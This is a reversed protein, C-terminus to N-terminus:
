FHGGGGGRPKATRVPKSSSGSSSSSSSVQGSGGGGRPKATRTSSSGGSRSSSPAASSSGSRRPAGSRYSGGGGGASSRGRSYGRGNIVRGHTRTTPEVVVVSPTYGWYSGGYGYYGGYGYGGYGYYFPDYGYYGYRFGWPAYFPDFYGMTGRYGWRRGATGQDVASRQVDSASAVHFTEPFSVAVAVDIVDDAVGADAMRVLADADLQLKDRREALLAQVAEAPVQDSAEIVDDVDLPQAAMMRADRATWSLDLLDGFGAAETSQDDAVRYRQVWAMQQGGMGSVRVDIWEGNHAIAMIGAGSQEGGNECTHDSTTFVRRGDRSFAGEEWGSCDGRSTEHRQADAWVVERSVVETGSVRVVEIADSQSGPRVCLLDDSGTSNVPVWCGVWPAWRPDVNQQATVRAPSLASLAVLASALALLGSTRQKSM